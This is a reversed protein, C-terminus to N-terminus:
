PRIIANLKTVTDAHAPHAALNRYEGPDSQHDYLEAGARGDDWETYRWRDTRVSRGMVKGRQVQTYAPRDWKARPDDLLPRLSAGQLNAPPKLGTLDALTPYLDLLEVTRPSAAGAHKTGPAAVVLPARASLEFVTNKNWWGREGLHYGHDGLLVVITRDALKLRDLADLMKGLQADTFSVGAYYARLFERRERDGFAGFAQQFAGGGLAHPLDPSRDAPDAYLKLGDLPYPDFYRKPAVFPDHPKHFGCALFFPKDRHEEMLKIADRAIMGDPQDEDTGEAAQWHCWALKGGTLNRGEGKRGAPTAQYYRAVDWSPPDDMEARVDEMTLGRHFIKGFNATAYGNQRFLQPLTVVDPLTKRIPTNNDYTRTTDPRLGTLFSNRSPNCVPYQCYAREFRVGRAALRDINPSRVAPVGYCGLEPRLDDAVVFLVNLKSDALKPRVAPPDAAPASAPLVALTVAVAAAAALLTPFRM